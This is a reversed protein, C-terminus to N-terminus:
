CVRHDPRILVIPPQETQKFPAILFGQKGNLDTLDNLIHAERSEPLVLIPEDTWPQRSPAFSAKGRALRDILKPISISPLIM